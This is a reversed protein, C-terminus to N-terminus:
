IRLIRRHLFVLCCKQSPPPPPNRSFSDSLLRSTCFSNNSQVQFSGFMVLHNHISRWWGQCTCSFTSSFCVPTRSIIGVCFRHWKRAVAKLQFKWRFRCGWNPSFNSLAGGWRNFSFFFLLLLADILTNWFMNQYLFHFLWLRFKLLRVVDEKKKLVRQGAQLVCIHCCHM